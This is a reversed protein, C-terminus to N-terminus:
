WEKGAWPQLSKCLHYRNESRGRGAAQIERAASSSRRKSNSYRIRPGDVVMHEIEGRAAWFYPTKSNLNLMRGLEGTTYYDKTLESSKIM